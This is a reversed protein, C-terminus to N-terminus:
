TYDVTEPSLSNNSSNEDWNNLMVNPLLNNLVHQLNPETYLRRHLSGSVLLNLFSHYIFDRKQNQVKAEFPTLQCNALKFCLNPRSKTPDLVYVILLKEELLITMSVRRIGNISEAIVTLNSEDKEQGQNTIEPKLNM